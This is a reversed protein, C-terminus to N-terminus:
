LISVQAGEFVFYVRDQLSALQGLLELTQSALQSPSGAGWAWRVPPSAASLHCSQLPHVKSALLAAGKEQKSPLAQAGPM